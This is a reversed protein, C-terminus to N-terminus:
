SHMLRCPLVHDSILQLMMNCLLHAVEVSLHSKLKGMVKIQLSDSLICCLSLQWTLVSQSVKKSKVSAAEAQAISQLLTQIQQPGILDQLSQQPYVQVWCSRQSAAYTHCPLLCITNLQSLKSALLLQFWRLSGASGSDRSRGFLM